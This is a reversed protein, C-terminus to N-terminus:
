LSTKRVELVVENVAKIVVDPRDFQIYHSSNSVLEHRSRSSWTAEDGQLEKWLSRSHM